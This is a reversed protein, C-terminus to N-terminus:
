LGLMNLREPTPVGAKDWGREAYYQVLLEPLNHMQGKSPGSPIPDNLLRKPLTDDAASYGVKLNHLREINWIREGCALLEEDTYNFGTVANVLATYDTLGLAFSSFLCLGVADIVATLDQFIKTWTAKGELSNRDLKEPLGLIEPSIMYGRVHCGGRNSTAYSLAQGQIGRPDYAPLEQKKVSMSLEPAGYSEALNYSGMAMKAGLGEVYAIKRVWEVMGKANGFELPTGDLEEPKIYGRQVLEMGAAITGGVSITDLGLKNCLDNAEHIADFDHIGCDSGFVWATEYEPGAGEKGDWKSYRGCAIPCRYCPHKKLLYKETMTEGSILDAEPDYSGQFNNVPYVGTENIINVLVASGYTPLGQGTVGNERIKKLSNAVVEKMQDPNANEVKGTGRVVIGKVNKSGMVAGVGTRGAARYLDNVIAAMLSLNEGAPGIALVKAKDDGFEQKLADTTEYVDKGWVKGADKIEVQGDKISIYVPHDSKGELVLMDYGAFKLEAGWYGGSNSSAIVGNLPSKTVVMYRSPTPANTGTLVGSAIFLKNAPSLADVDSAVEDAFMKGALGRGGLYKKALEMSLPETSTKGETLNIRLIKGTYGGM